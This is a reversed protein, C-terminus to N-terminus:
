MSRYNDFFSNDEIVAALPGQAEKYFDRFINRGFLKISGIVNWSKDEDINDKIYSMIWSLLEDNASLEDILVDVARTEVQEDNLEVRLNATLDLERALNRLVRQFFSDITEIRFADYNHLLLQLAMGARRSAFDPSVGLDSCIAKMYAKSDDLCKWIGYLQSLIRTKMEETAKNTFTVGLIANYDLPNAILLKIYEITLTFTKGSGASAKYVILSKDMFHSNLTQRQYASNTTVTLKTTKEYMRAVYSRPEVKTSHLVPQKAM